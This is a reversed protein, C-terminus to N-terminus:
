RVVHFPLNSSLTGNPTVVHINGSTANAPVTAVILSSSAVKFVAAAGNFSVNTAGTLNTGLIQVVAGAKGSDPQPKVFPGLGTSLSFVSGYYGYGSLTTGYFDGSTAQVLAAEPLEGDPCGYQLCFTYLTTLIGSPTIKFITGAGYSSTSYAGGQPTTGYFNGDTGEILAASPYEGDTCGSQACFSYLTTLVGGETLQFITGYGNTGGGYTTGYFDGNNAQVLAALPYAGDTCGSSACFSYLTTLAGSATIKFVTGAGYAGGSQTTGYFDGNTAQILGAAPSEGDTCAPGGQSCFTHLTKFVGGPTIKFVTGALAASSGGWLTTGYLDGNTARVLTSPFLGDTCSSGGQSCFKYITTLTGSLTIKFITGCGSPYCTGSRIGGDFTTGYSNGQVTQVLAENPHQGQRSGAFNYLTTLAGSPTIQFITGGDDGNCCTSVTTTGYLSGETAQVLAAQPGAGDTLDFTFLTTFTQASLAAAGAACLGIVCVARVVPGQRSAWTRQSAERLDMDLLICM